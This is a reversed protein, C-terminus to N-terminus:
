ITICCENEKIQKRESSAAARREINWYPFFLFTYIACREATNRICAASTRIVDKVQAGLFLHVYMSM